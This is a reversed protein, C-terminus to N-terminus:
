LCVSVSETLLLSSARTCTHMLCVACVCVTFTCIFASKKVLYIDSKSIKEGCM